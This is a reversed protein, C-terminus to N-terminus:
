FMLNWWSQWCWLWALVLLIWVVLLFFLFLLLIIITFWCFWFLFTFFIVDLSNVHFITIKKGQEDCKLYNIFNWLFKGFHPNQGVLFTPLLYTRDTLCNQCFELEKNLEKKFLVKKFLQVTPQTIVFIKKERM